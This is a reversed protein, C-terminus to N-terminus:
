PQKPNRFEQWVVETEERACLSIWYDGIQKQVFNRKQNSGSGKGVTHEERKEEKACASSLLIRSGISCEGSDTKEVDFEIQEVPFYMGEGTMKIYSEKLTWIQFFRSFVPWDMREEGKGLIYCQERPSCCRRIVPLKVQRIREGDVGVECRAVACVVLGKTNSVNFYIGEEPKWFPKGHIGKEVYNRNFEMHFCSKFGHNLIEDALKRQYKLYEGPKEGQRLCFAYYIRIM